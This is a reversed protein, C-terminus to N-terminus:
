SGKQRKVRKYRTLEGIYSQPLAGFLDTEPLDSLQQRENEDRAKFERERRLGIEDDLIQDDYQRRRRPVLRKYRNNSNAYNVSPNNNLFESDGADVNPNYFDYETQRKRQRNKDYYGEEDFEDGEIEMEYDDDKYPFYPGEGRKRRRYYYEDPAYDRINEYAERKKRKLKQEANSKVSIGDLRKNEPSLGRRNRLKEKAEVNREKSKSSTPIEIEVNRKHQSLPDKIKEPSRKQLSDETQVNDMANLNNEIDENKSNVSKKNISRNNMNSKDESKQEEENINKQNLNISTHRRRRILPKLNNEINLGPDIEPTEENLLNIATQRKTRSSENPVPMMISRKEKNRLTEIEKRVEEKIADIKSQINREIREQYSLQNNDTGFLASPSTNQNLPANLNDSSALPSKNGTITLEGEMNKMIESADSKEGERKARLNDEKTNTSTESNKSKRNKSSINKKDAEKKKFHKAIVSESHQNKDRKHKIENNNNIEIKEERKNRENVNGVKTIEITNTKGELNEDEENYISRKVPADIESNDDKEALGMEVLLSRLSREVTEMDESSTPNRMKDLTSKLKQIHNEDVSIIHKKSKDNSETIGYEDSKEQDQDKNEHQHQKHSKKCCDSGRKKLSVKEKKSSEKVPNELSSFDDIESNRKVMAEKKALIESQEKFNQSKDCERKQQYKNENSTQSDFTDRKNTNEQELNPAIDDSRKFEPSNDNGYEENTNIPYPNEILHQTEELRKGIHSNERLKRVPYTNQPSQVSGELNKINRYERPLPELIGLPKGNNYVIGYPFSDRSTRYDINKDEVTNKLITPDYSDYNNQLLVRKYKIADINNSDVSSSEYDNTEDQADIQGILHKINKNVASEGLSFGYRITLVQLICYFYLFM